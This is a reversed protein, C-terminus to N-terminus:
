AWEGHLFWRDAERYVWLWRGDATQVKYYDRTHGIRPDQRWWEPELREPGICTIVRHTSGQLGLMALPGEPLLLTATIPAPTTRLLLPRDASSFAHSETRQPALTVMPALRAAREPIHSGALEARQVANAGLRSAITDVLRAVDDPTSDATTSQWAGLQHEAVGGLDRAGLRVAEVGFGLHARSLRPLLMSWLHSADRTPAATRVAILVPDLDSRVLTVILRRSGLGRARLMHVLDLLLEHACLEVAELRDTPGDFIREVALPPSSAVPTISEHACGLAQDLRLLLDPGYRSALDPRPMALLHGLRELGVQRLQRCVEPTARTAEIPLDRLSGSIDNIRACMRTGNGFRALAWAAGFTPAAALQHTLGLGGLAQEIRRMLRDIGAYLRECGTADLLLGDPLDVAVRPVFRTAWRALRRLNRADQRPDQPRTHVADPLLARAHALTMGPTVGCRLARGCCSGVVERQHDIRVLVIPIRADVRELRRVLDTPFM